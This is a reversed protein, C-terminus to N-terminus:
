GSESGNCGFLSGAQLGVLIELTRLALFGLRRGKEKDEAERAEEETVIM